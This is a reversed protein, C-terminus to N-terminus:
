GSLVALDDAFRPYSVDAAEMGVVEVGDSSALGAVAGLLALRHDGHANSVVGACAAPAGSSSATRSRRSRPASGACGRSWPRSGTRSRSGCSAPAVSSRRARPSAGSCRSWRCSTSRWRSRRPSSRPARSRDKVSTSTPSPSTPASRARPSSSASCSRTADARPDAPLRHPDLQRRRGRAGAAVGQRACRGRDPVRGVVPGRPDDLEDLELEDTNSITTRYGDGPDGERELAAGARLLMRETHDRSAVPEIVSTRDTLLGALLVCSKVQASAVPLEYDIGALQAGHVTFPPFRGDGRM